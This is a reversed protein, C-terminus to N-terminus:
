QVRITDAHSTRYQLGWVTRISTRERKEQYSSFPNPVLTLASDLYLTLCSCMHCRPGPAQTASSGAEERRDQKWIREGKGAWRFWPVHACWFSARSWDKGYETLCLFQTEEDKPLNSTTTQNKTTNQKQQLLACTQGDKYAFVTQRESTWARLRSSLSM